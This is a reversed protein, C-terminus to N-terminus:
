AAPPEALEPRVRDPEHLTGLREFIKLARTLYDGAEAIQAECEPCFEADPPAHHQCRPCPM